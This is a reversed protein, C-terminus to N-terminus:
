KEGDALDLYGYLVIGVAVVADLATWLTPNSPTLTQTAWPYRVRLEVSHPWCCFPRPHPPISLLARNTNSPHRVHHLSAQVVMSNPGHLLYPDPKGGTRCKLTHRTSKKLELEQHRILQQRDNDSWAPIRTASGM